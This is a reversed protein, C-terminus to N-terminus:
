KTEEEACPALMQKRFESLPMSMPSLDVGNPSGIVHPTIKECSVCRCLVVNTEPEFDLFLDKAKLSRKPLQTKNFEICKLCVLCVPKKGTLDPNRVIRIEGTEDLFMTGSITKSTEVTKAPFSQQEENFEQYNIKGIPIKSQGQLQENEVLRGNVVTMQAKELTTANVAGETQMMFQAIERFAGLQDFSDERKAIKLSDESLIGHLRKKNRKSSSLLGLNTLYNFASTEHEFETEPFQRIVVDNLSELGCKVVDSVSAPTLGNVQMFKAATALTRLQFRVSVVLTKESQATTSNNLEMKKLEKKKTCPVTLDSFVRLM